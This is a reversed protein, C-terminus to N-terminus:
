LCQWRPQRTMVFTDTDRTGYISVSKKCRPLILIELSKLFSAAWKPNADMAGLLALTAEDGAPENGTYQLVPDATMNAM